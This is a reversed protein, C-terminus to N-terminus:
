FQLSLRGTIHMRTDVSVMKYLAAENTDVATMVTIIMNQKDVGVPLLIINSKLIECGHSHTSRGSHMDEYRLLSNNETGSAVDDSSVM